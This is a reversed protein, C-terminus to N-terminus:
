FYIIFVIHLVIFFNLPQMHPRRGCYYSSSCEIFNVIRLSMNKAASKYALPLASICVHVKHRLALYRLLIEALVIYTLNLCVIIFGLSM